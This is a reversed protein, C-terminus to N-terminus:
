TQAARPKQSALRACAHYSLFLLMIPPIIVHLLGPNIEGGHARHAVLIDAFLQHPQAASRANLLDIELVLERGDLQVEALRAIQGEQPRFVGPRHRIQNARQAALGEHGVAGREVDAPALVRQIMQLQGILVAVIGEDGATLGDDGVAQLAVVVHEHGDVALIDFVRLDAAGHHVRIHEDRQGMELAVLAGAEAARQLVDAHAAAGAAALGLHVLAFLGGHM